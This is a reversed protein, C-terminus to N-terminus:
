VKYGELMKRLTEAMTSLDQSAEAIQETRATNEHSLDKVENVNQAIEQSVYNQEEAASAIQNSADTLKNVSSSIVDFSTRASNAATLGETMSIKSKGMVGVADETGQQLRSIISQIQVTSDHTRQALTRVEDAVVAFGRGTDGARAAEIAANLALLNTQEAIGQIEGLVNDIEDSDRHLQEIVNTAENLDKELIEIAHECQLNVSTGEEATSRTDDSVRATETASKAVEEVSASMETIASAMMETQQHQGGIAERTENSAQELKKSQDALSDVSNLSSVMAQLKAVFANFWYALEGFEDDRDADLRQTLDGEGEAIDKVMRVTRNIPQITHLSFLYGVLAAIFSVISVTIVSSILIETKLREAAEFAEAEDIESMLVWDLGGVAIPKYASLVNVGRYDPFIQFGSEGALAAETGTTRVKQLGISTGKALIENVTSEAVDLNRLVQAYGDADEVLFRSVSRMLYDGGVLYTEGSEGLGSAEWNNEHTMLGNIRDIPMQFILIGLKKGGDFIPSAIFSAPAEYSPTYPSFDVLGVANPDASDKVLKFAEGIGSNAYPGNILSTTYDLEKYVSYVIDGTEHNVLFIDYYEFKQLYDRIHPHYLAHADNYDAKQAARILADKEGLPNSNSSIYAHQLALSDEDLGNLMRNLDATRGNNLSRYKDGFEDRYYGSLSENATDTDAVVQDSYSAFGDDFERMADIMMRNNSSTLIQRKIAGFYSEITSATTDRISTLHERSQDELAEYGATM